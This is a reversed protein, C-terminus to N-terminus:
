RRKNKHIEFAFNRANWAHKTVFDEIREKDRETLYPIGTLPDYSSYLDKMAGALRHENDWETPLLVTHKLSYREGFTVEDGENNWYESTHDAEYTVTAINDFLKIDDLSSVSKIRGLGDFLKLQAIYFNHDVYEGFGAEIVDDGLKIANLNNVDIYRSALYKDGSWYMVNYGSESGAEYLFFSRGEAIFKKKLAWGTTTM